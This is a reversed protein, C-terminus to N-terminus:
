VCITRGLTEPSIVIRVKHQEPFNLIEIGGSGSIEFAGKENPQIGNISLLSGNCKSSVADSLSETFRGLSGSGLAPSLRVTQGSQTVGFNYGGMLSVDGGVIDNDGEDHIITLSDVQNRFLSVLLGPEIVSNSFQWFVDSPISSVGAGFTVRAKAVFVDEYRSDSISGWGDFPFEQSSCEVAVIDSGSGLQFYFVPGTEGPPFIEAGSSEPGVIAVLKATLHKLRHILIFDLLIDDQLVSDDDAKLVSNEEFPYSRQSNETLFEVFADTM